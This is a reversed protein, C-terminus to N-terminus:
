GRYLLILLIILGMVVLVVPFYHIVMCIFTGNTFSCIKSGPNMGSIFTPMFLAIIIIAMIWFLLSAIVNGRKRM